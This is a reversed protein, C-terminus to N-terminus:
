SYVSYAWISAWMTPRRSAESATLTHSSLSEAVSVVVAVVAVVVSLFVVVVVVVVLLLELIGLGYGSGRTVFPLLVGRPLLLNIFRWLMDRRDEDLRNNVSAKKWTQDIRHLCPVRPKCVCVIICIVISRRISLSM